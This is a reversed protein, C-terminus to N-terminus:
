EMVTMAAEDLGREWGREVQWERALIQATLIAVFAMNDREGLSRGSFAKDALAAVRAPDFLGARAVEERALMRGALERGAGRTFSRVNPATYPRKSRELIPAPVLDAVADRLVRKERLGRLKLPAALRQGFEVVRYDLFPYRGEVGHAMSMRDGQSALLHGALFVKFELYEARGLPDRAALPAAFAALVEDQPDYGSLGARLADGYFFRNKLGNRWTPRHSFAPDDTRDIGERYFAEVFAFARADAGPAFPYLRRLLAPRRQSQPERAWWARIKTEKFIDYGGFVEDAGEGTLVVKTGHSRVLQALLYLPAPATRLLPKEAHAVVRPLALAIDDYGVEIQHHTTGLAAVALQQERREDYDADAFAVSYTQLPADTVSRVLATAATSDLGGSLYSGVPVDARLRIRVSDELLARLEEVARRECSVLQGPGPPAPLDWYRRLEPASDRRVILLHGPPLEQVGALVTRPPVTTWLVFVQDLGQPDFRAPVGAALLSKIESAFLLRGDREAWYVPRIGLRDRALVLRKQREDWLALGFNGNLHEAFRDGWEEYAHVVVETDSKTRFRHGAAELEARLEVYNYVEGNYTIWVSNDENALPQTGTALDIIALRAHAFAAGRGLWLGFGDPGRHAVAGIMRALEDRRAPRGGREVIGAIGCM